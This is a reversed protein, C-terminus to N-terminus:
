RYNDNSIHYKVGTRPVRFITANFSDTGVCTGDSESVNVNEISSITGEPTLINWQIDMTNVGQATQLIGGTVSWTFTNGTVATSYTIVDGECVTAIGTISPTPNANITQTVPVIGLVSSCGDASTVVVDVETTPPSVPLSSTTYTNATGTQVSGGDVYFEYNVGGTATFVVAVGECSSASSSVLTPIPTANITVIMDTNGVVSGATPTADRVATITYTTTTAPSVTHVHPSSAAAYETGNLTYTWPATGGTFALTIDTSNGECIAIDNSVITGTIITITQASGLTIYQYSNYDIDSNCSITGNTADGTVTVSGGVQEWQSGNWGVIRLQNINSIANAIDSSGDLDITVTSQAGGVVDISWYETQSVTSIGGGMASGFDVQPNSFFYEVSVDTDVGTIGTINTVDILGRGGAKGVPFTFDDGSSMVKTLPGNIYSSSNGDTPSITSTVGIRLTDTTSTTITGNTLYLTGAIDVVGSSITIGNPNNVVLSHLTNSNTFEGTINQNVTSTFSIQNTLDTGADFNGDVRVLDGRIEVDIDNDNDVNLTAGGDIRFDGNLVISNSPLRRQGTGSFTLNNVLAHDGLVDYDSTGGFEITGGASSFFADYTGAPIVERETYILGTGAVDGFRHGFTSNVRVTGQVETTYSSVFNSLTTVTHGINIKTIAGRPGGTVNPTWISTTSWNGTANTEYAPVQDPIAGNFGSGDVGATYDGSIENNDVGSFTFIIVENTEDFEYIGALEDYKNWNGSGDNLLRAAIYDTVDYPATVEVDGPQYSFNATGSFGTISNARLVWHYQLVNDADVIEPDPAESDEQISPHMEDAAKVTIYGTGSTNATINFDVPTYKGGSGIPFIFNKAGSPLYKRVGYDTFSVNTQIMNLSSFPNDEEIEANITLTLLNKGIGFVGSTLKLTDTVTFNNGLPSTVGSINNITIKGFTGSGTLQQEITGNFYIGEGSQNGHIHTGDFNCDGLIRVTNSSDRIIGAQFDFDNNITIAANSEALWLESSTTKTLNYFGTNGVIQQNGSGSFYTTNTNPTFTGYNYFNGNITLDLGNADFEAGAQITLDENITLPLVWESVTPNNGSTNDVIVNQLNISSYIGMNENAPTSANGFTFSAGTGVSSSGPDLYLTAAAPTTQAQVITINAGDVQAFSSGTNLVELVGRRNEPADTEGLIVTSNSHNQGFTLIGDETITNRRIQSGVRLTGQRIDIEATGSASYEIYNNTGQNLLWQSGSGVRMYGDLYIGTNTGSARVTANSVRLSATGPINFDGGGSTLFIDTGNNNLTLDGSLLYLAKEASTGNTPGNLILAENINVNADSSNKDVILRNLNFTAGANNVTTNNDGLLYLDTANNAATYLDVESNAGLVIDDYVNLIHNSTNTGGAVQEITNAAANGSLDVSKYVTVECSASNTPFRLVGANDIVISDNVILDNGNDLLLTENDILLNKRVLVDQNPMTKNTGGGTIELNPYVSFDTPITYGGGYYEFIATDNYIFNDWVGTPIDGNYSIRFRGGGSVEAFDHWRTTGADLTPEGAVGADSSKIVVHAATAVDGNITVTHNVGANSGIIFVNWDTLLISAWTGWNIQGGDHGDISWTSRDFWNGSRRSYIVNAFNLGLNTSVTFDSELFGINYDLPSGTANGDNEWDNGLLYYRRKGGGYTSYPDYFRLTIDAAAINELDGSLTTKWYQPNALSNDLVAPHYADVPTVSMTGSYAAGLTNNLEVEAHTYEGATGVPFDAVIGTATTGDLVIALELGRAGATGDTMIMKTTSFGSGSGDEVMNTDISFKFENIDLIGTTLIFYDLDINTSIVAGSANDLELNGFSPTYLASGTLTQQATGELTLRGPLSPNYVLKGDIITADGLLSVTYREITFQGKNITLNNEIQIITNAANAPDTSRGPCNDIGLDRFLTPDNRQEKDLVLNYFTIAPVDTANNIDIDSNQNGYFCTTNNGHNFTAGDAFEFDRKIYLDQGLANLTSSGDISLTNSVTIKSSLDVTTGNTISLDYFDATSYVESAVGWDCIVEGGTVNFNGSSCQIDIAGYTYGSQGEVILQGGSMSFYMDADNLSLLAAANSVEGNGNVRFIGGSQVYSYFGSSAAGTLRLQNINVEGGRIQVSGPAESRYILGASNSTSFYGNEVEIVGYIYLGQSGTANNYAPQAHSFGTWVTNDDATSYVEVNEGDLILKANEGVSWDNGGEGLSPIVIEGKLRVSGAEIWFAKNHQPHAVGTTYSNNNPGFLAFYAKNHVYVTLEYTADTGKDVHLNYLDTTNYCKLYNDSASTFHLTVAGTTTHATYNPVAQNTFRVKGYSVFDGGVTFDHFRNYYSQGGDYANGSGVTISANAAVNVNGDVNLDLLITSANNNIKLAGQTITLNGNIQYNALLTLTDTSNDLEVEVNYFTHATTLNYGTSDFVVTGEGQGATIFHTADGSPFNDARLLITGGGKINTFTHGTSAHFDIRGSVKLSANTKNDSYVEITRGSLIVVHHNIGTAATTPTLSDPNNPLAGSPDLTWIAPDDWDGSALTYWTTDQAVVCYSGTLLIGIFLLRRIMKSLISM